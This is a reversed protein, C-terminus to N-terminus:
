RKVDISVVPTIMYIGLYLPIAIGKHLFASKRKLDGVDNLHDVLAQPTAFEGKNCNDSCGDPIHIQFMDM